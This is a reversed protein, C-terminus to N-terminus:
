RIPLVQLRTLSLSCTTRTFAQMNEPKTATRATAFWREEYGEVSVKTKTWKLVAKLLPSKVAM